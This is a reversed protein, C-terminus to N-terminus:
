KSPTKKINHQNGNTERRAKRIERELIQSLNLWRNKDWWEYAEESINVNIRKKRFAKDITGLDSPKIM